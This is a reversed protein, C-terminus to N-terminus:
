SSIRLPWSFETRVPQGEKKPATFLARDVIKLIIPKLVPYPMKMIKILHVHGQTDIEVHLVVDVSRIGRRLLSRPLTPIKLEHILVPTQDLEDLTFRAITQAVAGELDVQPKLADLLETQDIVPNMEKIDVALPQLAIKVTSSQQSTNLNPQLAKKQQVPRPAKPPPLAITKVEHIVSKHEPEKMHHSLYFLIALLCLPVLTLPYSAMKSRDLHM